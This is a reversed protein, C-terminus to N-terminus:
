GQFIRKYLTKKSSATNLVDKKTLWGRRANAVGFRMLDLDATKHADTSIVFEVGGERARQCHYDPLDLRDPQANVELRVGNEVCAEFVQDLDLSIPDRRGIMRGLPHGICDVVGSTIASRVRQTMKKKDLNWNYHISAVVWDLEALLDEDLDLKGNKLIDVEIGALLWFGKMSDNVSRIKDAHKRLREEDLGKAMRVAKSHDTIALFKYGRDKAAKAMEEITNQGDTAKTHAHLDGHIDKLGVLTPLEDDEAAEIEGRDERLEPPPCALGLRRYISEETKGALRRKGKFLGYENLKWDKSVARKRVAINHAKSGTFYMLAAGFSKPEFFRFDVQLSSGLRVSIKEKGKGLVEAIEGYELIGQQVSSRDDAHVLIDLDGITEKRRRFSGAVEWREIASVGDLYRGLSEVHDAAEKLGIRGSASEVTRLGKLINEETKPGMGDLKRVRHAECAKRLSDFSDVGLEEHLQMAKRPGIHAVKMLDALQSPVKERLAELRRCTGKQLIEHIKGATSEGVNPLKSLDEGQEALDEVRRSFGRVTRATSRYARIRFANGGQLEILDAIEDFIDAIQANEM